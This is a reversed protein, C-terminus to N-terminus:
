IVESPDWCYRGDENFQDLLKMDEKSIDFNFVEANEEIRNKNSSKPIAVINHQLAWRILIQASSKNYKEAIAVLNNNDLKDGRTLPSYAVLQINNKKCFDLLEQQYLYPSFEVQNVAPIISSNKLLENLHNITFNSVGIAKCRGEEYLRELIKWTTLRQPVPWHILYLDVYDLGLNELSNNFAIEPNNHQNNWIKTTVFIEERPIGSKKIAEGIEEENGYFSATDIHRYGSQLACLVANEATKGSSLWTGLGLIPIETGNNLKLKTNIDM